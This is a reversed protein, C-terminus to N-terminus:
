YITDTCGLCTVTFFCELPNTDQCFHTEIPCCFSIESPCQLPLRTGGGKISTMKEGSLNTITEKKLVLKKSFRKTRM